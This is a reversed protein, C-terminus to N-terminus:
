STTNKLGDFIFKVLAYSSFIVVLGITAWVLTNKGKTVKEPSGGSLMWTFVGYVFMLLALSGSIGLVAAIVRGILEQPTTEGKGLPNDISVPKNLETQGTVGPKEEALATFSFINLILFPLILFFLKIKM